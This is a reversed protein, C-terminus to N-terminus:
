FCCYFRTEFVKSQIKNQKKKRHLIFGGM